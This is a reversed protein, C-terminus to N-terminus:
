DQDKIRTILDGFDCDLYKAIKDIIKLHIYEGKKIKAITGWSVGLDNHLDQLQKEKEILKIQLGKYSIGM